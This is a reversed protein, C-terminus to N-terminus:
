GMPHIMGNILGLLEENSSVGWKELEEPPLDLSGTLGKDPEAPDYTVGSGMVEALTSMTSNYTGDELKVSAGSKAIAAIDTYDPDDRDGVLADVLKGADIGNPDSIADVVNSIIPVFSQIVGSANGGFDIEFQGSGISNIQDQIVDGATNAIMDWIVDARFQYKWADATGNNWESEDEATNPDDPMAGTGFLRTLIQHKLGNEGNVDIEVGDGLELVPVATDTLYQNAFSYPTGEGTGFVTIANYFAEALADTKKQPMNEPDAIYELISNIGDKIPLDTFQVGAVVFGDVARVVRQWQGNEGAAGVGMFKVLENKSIVVRGDYLLGHEGIFPKKDDAITINELLKNANEAGLVAFLSSNLVARDLLETFINNGATTADPAPKALLEVIKMYEKDDINDKIGHYITQGSVTTKFVYSALDIYNKLESRLLGLGNDAAKDIVASLGLIFDPKRNVTGYTDALKAYLSNQEVTIDNVTKAGFYNTGKDGAALLRDINYISADVVRFMTLDFMGDVIMKAAKYDKDVTMYEMIDVIGPEYDPVDSNQAKLVKKIRDIRDVFTLVDEALNAGKVIDNSLVVKRTKNNEDKTELRISTQYDFAKRALGQIGTYKVIGSYIKGFVAADENTGHLAGDIKNINDFVENAESNVGDASAALVVEGDFAEHTSIEHMVSMMGGIPLAVIFFFFLVFGQVAGVLGGWARHQPIKPLDRKKVKVGQPAKERKRAFIGAFIAYVIWSLWQMLFFLVFFLVINVLTFGIGMAFTEFDPMITRVRSVLEQMDEGELAEEIYYDVNEGITRGEYVKFPLNYIGRAIIPTLLLAAGLFIVISLLRMWSRKFGRGLGWLFGFLVFLGLLGLLVAGAWENLLDIVKEM